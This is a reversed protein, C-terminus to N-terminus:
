GDPPLTVDVVLGEYARVRMEWPVKGPYSIRITYITGVEMPYEMPTSGVYIDDLEVYAGPPTSEFPVKIVERESDEPPPGEVTIERTSRATAGDNDTVTLRVTFTGERTYRHTPTQETSSAGDGFAWHWSVVEGDPDTSLDTFQVTDTLSPRGPTFWFQAVPPQNEPQPAPAPPAAAEEITFNRRRSPGFRVNFRVEWEGPLRSAETGRIPMRRWMYWRYGRELDTIEQELYTSGDPAYWTVTAGYKLWRADRPILVCMVVYVAEDTASFTDERTTIRFTNGVERVGRGVTMEELTVGMATQPNTLVLFSALLVAGGLISWCTRM